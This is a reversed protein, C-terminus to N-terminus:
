CRSLRGTGRAPAPQYMLYELWQCRPAAQSEALLLRSTRQLIDVASMSLLSSIGSLLLRSTGHLISWGSFRPRRSIGSLFLRSTGHLISWGSFRSCGAQVGSLLLPQYRPPYELRQYRPVSQQCWQALAPQYRPPFELRQVSSCVASVRHVVPSQVNLFSWGSVDFLLSSVRQAVALQYRPSVGFGSFGLFSQQYSLPIQQYVM